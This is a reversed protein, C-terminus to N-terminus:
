TTGVSGCSQTDSFFRGCVNCAYRQYRRTNTLRFGRKQFDTHGLPCTLGNDLSEGYLAVHPLKIHPLMNDFLEETTVVDQVNYKRMHRQAKERVLPDSSALRLWTSFGGSDVKGSLNKQQTIWALKHSLHREQKKVVKYLDVSRYPSPAGLGAADFERNLHPLDFNDGNYTVVVDAQDMLGWASLLWSDSDWEALFHVKKEGHWKAALCIVRTPEIIQDISVFPRFIDWVYVKAPATEIDITLIRPGTM